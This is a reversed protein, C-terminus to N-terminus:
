KLLSKISKLTTEASGGHHRQDILDNIIRDKSTLENQLRAIEAREEDITAQYEARLADIDIGNATQETPTNETQEENREEINEM